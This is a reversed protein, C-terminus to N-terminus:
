NVNVGLWMLWKLERNYLETAPKYGVYQESGKRTRWFELKSDENNAAVLRYLQNLLSAHDEKHEVKVVRINSM